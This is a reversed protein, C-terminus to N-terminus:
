EAARGGAGPDAMSGESDRSGVGSEPDIVPEIRAVRGESAQALIADGAALGGVIEVAKDARRSTQVNQEQAVGDVLKWVKEAGAFEVIASQPVILATAEPDVVVEAEAFLGARMSGDANPVEAEFTLSRNMEEVNPSIRTISAVLPQTVEAAGPAGLYALMVARQTDLFRGMVQQFQAVVAAVDSRVVLGSQAVPVGNASPVIAPSGSASRAPPIAQSHGNTSPATAGNTSPPAHAGVTVSHM